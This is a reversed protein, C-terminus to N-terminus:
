ILISNNADKIIFNTLNSEYIFSNKFLIEKFNNLLAEKWVLPSQM